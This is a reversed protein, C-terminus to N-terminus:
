FIFLRAILAVLMGLGIGIVWWRWRLSTAAQNSYSGWSVAQRWAPDDQLVLSFVRQISAANLSAAQAPIGSRYWMPPTDPHAAPDPIYVLQVEDYHALQLCVKLDLNELILSHERKDLVAQVAQQLAEPSPNPIHTKASIVLESM